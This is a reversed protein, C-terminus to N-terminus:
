AAACPEKQLTCISQNYRVNMRFPVHWIRCFGEPLRRTMKMQEVTFDARSTHWWNKRKVKLADTCFVSPM